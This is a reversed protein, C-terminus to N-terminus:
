RFTARDLTADFFRFEDPEGVRWGARVRRPITYGGSRFEGELQVDFRDYGAPTGDRAERWRPASARLM